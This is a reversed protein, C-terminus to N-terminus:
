HRHTRTGHARHEHKRGSLVAMTTLRHCERMRRQKGGAQVTKKFLCPRTSPRVPQLGPMRVQKPRGYRQRTNGQRSCVSHEWVRSRREKNMKTTDCPPKWDTFASPLHARTNSSSPMGGAGFVLRRLLRGGEFPPGEAVALVPLSSPSSASDSSASSFSSNRSPLSAM